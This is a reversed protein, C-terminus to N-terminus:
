RKENYLIGCQVDSFHIGVCAKVIGSDRNVTTIVPVHYHNITKNVVCLCHCFLCTDVFLTIEM